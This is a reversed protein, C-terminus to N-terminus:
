DCMMRERQELVAGDCLGADRITVKEAEEMTKPVSFECNPKATRSGRSRDRVVYPKCKDLSLEYSQIAFIQFGRCAIPSQM